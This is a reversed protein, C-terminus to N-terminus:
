DLIPLSATVPANTLYPRAREQRRDIKGDAGAGLPLPLYCTAWPTLDAHRRGARATPRHRNPGPGHRPPASGHAGAATANSSRSGGAPRDSRRTGASAPRRASPLVSEDDHDRHQSDDECAAEARQPPPKAGARDIQVHGRGPQRLRNFFIDTVAVGDLDAARLDLPGAPDPDRHANAVDDHAVAVAGDHRARRLGLHLKGAGCQQQAPKAGLAEIEDIGFQRHPDRRVTGNGNGGSLRCLREGGADSGLFVCPQAGVNGLCIAPVVCGSPVAAGAGDPVGAAAASLVWLPSSAPRSQSSLRLRVPRSPWFRLSIPRFFPLRMTSSWCRPLLHVNSLILRLRRRGLPPPTASLRPSSPACAQDSRTVTPGGALPTRETSM